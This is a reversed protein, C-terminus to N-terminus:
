KINWPHKELQVKWNERNHGTKNFAFWFYHGNWFDEVMPFNNIEVPIFLKFNFKYVNLKMVNKKWTMCDAAIENSYIINIVVWEISNKM